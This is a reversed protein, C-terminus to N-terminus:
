EAHGLHGTQSDLVHTAEWKPFGETAQVLRHRREAVGRGLHPVVEGLGILHILKDPGAFRVGLETERRPQQRQARQGAGRGTGFSPGKSYVM